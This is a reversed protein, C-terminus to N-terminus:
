YASLESSLLGELKATQSGFESGFWVPEGQAIMDRAARELVDVTCNLYRVPRHSGIVCGLYAVTFTRNRPSTKRPDDILCIYDEVPIKCFRSFFSHPTLTLPPPTALLQTPPPSSPPTDTKPPISSSTEPTPVSPSVSPSLAALAHNCTIANFRVSM